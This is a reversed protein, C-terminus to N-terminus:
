KATLIPNMSLSLIPITWTKLFSVDLDSYDFHPGFRRATDLVVATLKERAVGSRNLLEAFCCTAHPHATSHKEGAWRFCTPRSCTARM